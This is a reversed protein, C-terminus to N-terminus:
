LALITDIQRKTLLDLEASPMCYSSLLHKNFSHIFLAHKAPVGCSSPWVADKPSFEWRLPLHCSKGSCNFLSNVIFTPLKGQFIVILWASRWSSVFVNGWNFEVVTMQPLHTGKYKQWCWKICSSVPMSISLLKGLTVRSSTASSPMSSEEWGLLRMSAQTSTAGPSWSSKASWSKLFEQCGGSRHIGLFLLLGLGLKSLLSLYLYLSSSIYFGLERLFTLYNIHELLKRGMLWAQGAHRQTHGKLYLLSPVCSLPDKFMALAPHFLM